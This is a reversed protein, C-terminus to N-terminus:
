KLLVPITAWFICLENAHSFNFSDRKCITHSGHVIQGHTINENNLHYIDDWFHDSIMVLQNM